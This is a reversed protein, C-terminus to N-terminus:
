KRRVLIFGWPESAGLLYALLQDVASRSWVGRALDEVTRCGDYTRGSKVEVPIRASENGFRIRGDMKGSFLVIGDRDKVDFRFQQEVVKFPPDFFPGIRNLRAMIASEAEEGQAFRELSAPGFSDDDEPHLMDLASARTCARRRSAWVNQPQWVAANPDRPRRQRVLDAQWAATLSDLIEQPSLM